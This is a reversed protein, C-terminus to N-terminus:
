HQLITYGGNDYLWHKGPEGIVRIPSANNGKGFLLDETSPIPHRQETSDSDGSISATHNMLRRTTVKEEGTYVNYHLKWKSGSQSLYHNVDTDLDIKGQEALQLARLAAIPKSVSAVQFLTDPTVKINEELNAFGYGKAFAVKGNIAIAVSLGPVGEKEMQSLIDVPALVDGAIQRRLPINNEIRKFREQLDETSISKIGSKDANIGPRSNAM